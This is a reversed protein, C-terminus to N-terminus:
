RRRPSALVAPPREAGRVPGDILVTLLDAAPLGAGGFVGIDLTEEDVLGARVLPVGEAGTPRFAAQGFEETLAGAALRDKAELVHALHALRLHHRGAAVLAHEGDAIEAAAALGPPLRRSPPCPSRRPRRCAM